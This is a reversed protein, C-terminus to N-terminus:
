STEKLMEDIVRALLEGMRRYGEVGPHIEDPSDPLKGPNEPDHVAAYTDCFNLGHERSYHRIWENVELIRRRIEPTALNYPLITCAVVRIGAEKAKRYMAELNEKVHEAPYGQHLDNVGGLLILIDPNFRLVDYEFRKRIQDTRQGRVGRNLVNWEPHRRTMWYAYQSEVNGRGDPPIERPSAFGPTGATTSDGLAVITLPKQESLAAQGGEALIYGPASILFCLILVYIKGPPGEKRACKIEGCIRSVGVFHPKFDM